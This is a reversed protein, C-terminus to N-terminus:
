LINEEFGHSGEHIARLNKRRRELVVDHAVQHRPYHFVSAVLRVALSRPLQEETYERDNEAIWKVANPYNGCRASSKRPPSQIRNKGYQQFQYPM